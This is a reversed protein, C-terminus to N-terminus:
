HKILENTVGRWKVPFQYWFICKYCKENEEPKVTSVKVPTHSVLRPTINLQMLIDSASTFQATFSSQVFIFTRVHSPLCITKSPYVKLGGSISCVDSPLRTRTKTSAEIIHSALPWNEIKDRQCIEVMASCIHALSILIMVSELALHMKM